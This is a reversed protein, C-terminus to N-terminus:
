AASMSVNIEQQFTMAIFLVNLVMLKTIHIATAMIQPYM